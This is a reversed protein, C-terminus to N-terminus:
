GNDDSAGACFEKMVSFVIDDGFGKRKLLGFIRARKTKVDIGTVYRFRKEVLERAEALPDLAPEEFLNKRAEEASLGKKELLTLLKLAEEEVKPKLTKKTEKLKM